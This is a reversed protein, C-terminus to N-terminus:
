RANHMLFPIGLTHCMEKSSQNKTSQVLIFLREVDWSVTHATM